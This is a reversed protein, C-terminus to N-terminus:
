TSVEGVQGRVLTRNGLPKCIVSTKLESNETLSGFLNLFNTKMFGANKSMKRSGVTVHSYTDM